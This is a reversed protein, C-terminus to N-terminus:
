SQEKGSVAAGPALRAQSYSHWLRQYAGPQGLLTQHDGRQVIQGRELVLITDAETITHLRHAIVVVTRGAALNSLADQIAAESDPDAFATAEDLVLVPADAVLARAIMVRQAEGGSLHADEGAVSDYGRPLAMIRDHIQAAKAAREVAEPPAKPAALRINDRISARLLYTDQFVFGVQGYLEEAAVQRVDVGGHLVAGDTADYFRPILRALTTKGSGSPGVLATLTGPAFSASAGALALHPLGAAADAGGTTDSDTDQQTAAGPALGASGYSFSVDEARVETGQPQVPSTPQPMPPTAFFAELSERAKAADRLFQGSSGLAMVPATLGLGLVLAPVTDVAEIAGASVLWLSMGMLYALVVVPSAIVEILSELAITQRTWDAWIKVFGKTERSYREHAAGTQGFSKVVAIGHVYEITAANIRVVSANYARYRDMGSAMMVSYAVLTILMPALCILGIRWDVWFLYAAAVVPVTAATTFESIAHAVLQHLAAVDNQAAKKVEGSSRADFWGLPLRRLHAVMRQRIDLQLDADALHGILAAGGIAGFGVLLCIGAIIVARWAGAANIPGGTLAPWMARALEAVAVFPVVSTVAGALTLLM